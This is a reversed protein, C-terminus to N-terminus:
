KEESTIQRDIKLMEEQKEVSCRHSAHDSASFKFSDTVSIKLTKAKYSLLICPLYLFPM